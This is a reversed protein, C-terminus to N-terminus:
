IGAAVWAATSRHDDFRRVPFQMAPLGLPLEPVLVVELGAGAASAAGIATDEFALCAAPAIGLRAVATRYIEPDPKGRTVEDGGVLAVFRPTLGVEALTVEALRRASSTAVALPIGRTALVDLLEPIGPRLRHGEEAVLRDYRDQSADVFRTARSVSHWLAGLRLITDARNFGMLEIYLADPMVEGTERAAEQWARLYITESAVLTGDLDFVAGAIKM